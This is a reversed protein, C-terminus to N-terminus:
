LQTCRLTNGYNELQQSFVIHSSKITRTGKSQQLCYKALSISQGRFATLKEKKVEKEVVLVTSVVQHTAAIYLLPPEKEQPAVLVPPTSIV